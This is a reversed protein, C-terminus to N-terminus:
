ATGETAKDRKGGTRLGWITRDLNLEGKKARELMGHFYHGATRTFHEPHKTSVVAVAIAATERGMLQCAERWLPQSIDLERRLYDAADVIDSWTPDGGRLYDRLRPALLVLEDPLLRSV